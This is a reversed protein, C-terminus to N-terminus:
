KFSTVMPLSSCTDAKSCHTSVKLSTHRYDTLQM